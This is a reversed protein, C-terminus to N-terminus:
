RMRRAQHRVVAADQKARFLTLFWELADVDALGYEGAILDDNAPEAKIQCPNRTNIDIKFAIKLKFILGDIVPDAKFARM